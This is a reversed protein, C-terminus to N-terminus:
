IYQNLEDINYLRVVNQKKFDEDYSFIGSKLYLACAIFPFDKIDINKMIEKAQDTYSKMEEFPVINLNEIILKFLEDFENESLGSKDIIYQKYKEIEQIAYEPIYFNINKSILFRRTISNRLLGAILVNTDIVLNM